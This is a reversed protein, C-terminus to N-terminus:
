SPVGRTEEKPGAMDANWRDAGSALGM